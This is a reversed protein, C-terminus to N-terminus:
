RPNEFFTNWIKNKKHKYIKEKYGFVKDTIWNLSTDNLSQIADSLLEKYADTLKNDLSIQYNMRVQDPISDKKYGHIIYEINLEKNPSLIGWYSYLNPTSYDQITDNKSILYLNPSNYSVPYKGENKIYVRIRLTDMNHSIENTYHIKINPYLDSLENILIQKTRLTDNRSAISDILCYSFIGGVIVFAFSIIDKLDLNTNINM